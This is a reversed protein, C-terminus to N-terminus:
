VRQWLWRTITNGLRVFATPRATAITSSNFNKFDINVATTVNSDFNTEVISACREMTRTYEISPASNLILDITSIKRNMLDNTRLPAVSRGVDIMSLALIVSVIYKLISNM